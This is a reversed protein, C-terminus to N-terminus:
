EPIFAVVRERADVRRSLRYSLGIFISRTIGEIEQVAREAIGNSGKSQKPAEESITRGEPRQSEIERLLYRAASEPDSKVSIDRQRDGNEHIFDLCRDRGFAGIGGKMPVTTAMISKSGRERGVLVVWKYGLEDGPFCYDWSYEPLKREGGEDTKHAM